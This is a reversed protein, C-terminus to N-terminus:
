GGVVVHSWRLLNPSECWVSWHWVCSEVWERCYEGCFGIVKLHDFTILAVKLHQVCQRAHQISDTVVADMYNEWGQFVLAGFFFRSRRPSGAVKVVPHMRQFLHTDIYVYIIIYIIICRYIIHIYLTYIYLIWARENKRALGAPNRTREPTQWHEKFEEQMWM